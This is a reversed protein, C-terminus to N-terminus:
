MPMSPTPTTSLRTTRFSKQNEANVTFADPIVSLGNANMDLRISFGVHAPPSPASAAARTIRM